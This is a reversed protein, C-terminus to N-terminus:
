HNAEYFAYAFGLPTISRLEKTKESKGGWQSHRYMGKLLCPLEKKVPINFQGWLWTFKGYQSNEPTPDYGAYEYPQFKHLPQGMWPNLKHIRSAPNEIQWFKLLRENSLFHIIKKLHTILKQSEETRGDKDKQAFWKAGCLAYDTCPIAAIIGFEPLVSGYEHIVKIINFDLFNQGHKIDVQIVKWGNERYPRSQNGSHDFFSLLIKQIM